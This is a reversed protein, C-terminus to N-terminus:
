GFKSWLPNEMESVFAAHRAAEEESVRTILPAPRQLTESPGGAGAMATGGSRDDFALGAQAGGTLEIYVEALLRSDLLAGHGDREREETNIGFRSCLADLSAPAGPFKKRAIELTDIVSNGLKQLGANELEWQIFNMDFSANHAILEAEGVFAVFAEGISPDNFVPKSRLFESSLGHVKFASEPMDRQPNVYVHFNSGTLAGRNLEIAGIEVIRDGDRPNFGTTETDFIIQRM